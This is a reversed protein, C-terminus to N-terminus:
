MKELLCQRMPELYKEAEQPTLGHYDFGSLNNTTLVQIKGKRFKFFYIFGLCLCIFSAAVLYWHEFIFEDIFVYRNTSVVVNLFILLSAAGWFLYSIWRKPEVYDVSAIASVPITKKRVNSTDNVDSGNFEWIRSGICVHNDKFYVKQENSTVLSNNSKRLEIAQRLESENKVVKNDESFRIALGNQFLKVSEIIRSELSGLSANGDNLTETFFSYSYVIEQM